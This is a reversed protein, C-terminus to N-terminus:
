CVEFSLFVECTCVESQSKRNKWCFYERWDHDRRTVPLIDTSASRKFSKPWFGCIWAPLYSEQCKYCPPAHAGRLAHAFFHVKPEPDNSHLFNLFFHLFPTSICSFLSLALLQLKKTDRTNVYTPEKLSKQFQILTTHNTDWSTQNSTKNNSVKNM